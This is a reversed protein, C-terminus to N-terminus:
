HNSNENTVFFAPGKSVNKFSNHELSISREASNEFNSIKLEWDRDILHRKEFYQDIISAESVM